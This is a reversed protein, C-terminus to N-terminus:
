FTSNWYAHQGLYYDDAVNKLIARRLDMV